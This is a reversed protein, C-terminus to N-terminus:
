HREQYAKRSRCTRFIKWYLLWLMVTGVVLVAPIIGHHEAVIRMSVPYSWFGTASQFFVCGTVLVTLVCLMTKMAWAFLEIKFRYANM